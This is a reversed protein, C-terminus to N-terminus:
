VSFSKVCRWQSTKAIVSHVFCCASHKMLALSCNQSERSMPRNELRLWELTFWQWHTYTHTNLYKVTLVPQTFLCCSVMQRKIIGQKVTLLRSGRTAEKKVARSCLSPMRKFFRGVSCWLLKLHRRNIGPETQQNMGYTTSVSVLAHPLRNKNEHPPM